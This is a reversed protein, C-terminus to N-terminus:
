AVPDELYESAGRFEFSALTPFVARTLSAPRRRSSGSQNPRSTSPQFEISLDGLRTLAALSM